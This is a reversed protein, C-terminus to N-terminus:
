KFIFLLRAKESTLHCIMLVFLALIYDDMTDDDWRAQYRKEIAETDQYFRECM